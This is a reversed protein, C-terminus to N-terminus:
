PARSRQLRQLIHRRRLGHCRLGRRPRPACRLIRSRRLRGLIRPGVGTGSGVGVPDFRRLETPTAPPTLRAWQM